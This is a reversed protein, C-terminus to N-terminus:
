KYFSQKATKSNVMSNQRFSESKKQAEKRIIEKRMNYVSKLLDQAHSLHREYRLNVIRQQVGSAAFYQKNSKNIYLYQTICDNFTIGLQAAAKSTHPSDFDIKRRVKGYTNSDFYFFVKDNTISTESVITGLNM